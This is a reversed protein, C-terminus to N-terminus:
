DYTYILSTLGSAHSLLHGALAALSTLIIPNLVSVIVMMAPSMDEETIGTSRLMEMGVPIALAAGAIGILIFLLLSRWPKRMPERELIKGLFLICMFVRHLLLFKKM